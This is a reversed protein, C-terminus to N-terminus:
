RVVITGTMLQGHIGCDYQYTGPATFTVAYTGSGTMTGSSPFGASGLSQVSHPLSGTWNWTVTAGVSITDVAPNTSGNHGSTFQIGSGVKVSGVPGGGGGGNAGGVGGAGGGYPGSSNYGCGALAMVVMGILGKSVRM